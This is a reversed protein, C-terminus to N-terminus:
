YSTYKKGYLIGTVTLAGGAVATTVRLYKYFKDVLPFIYVGNGSIAGTTLSLAYFNSGDNSASLSIGTSSISAPTITQTDGVGGVSTLDVATGAKANALSSAFKIKSSDVKIIYYTGPTLGAPETGSTSTVVKLGTFLGHNAKTVVDTTTNVNTDTFTVVSPTSVTYNVQLSGQDINDLTIDVNTDYTYIAADIVKANSVVQM